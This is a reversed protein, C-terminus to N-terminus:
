FFDLHVLEGIQVRVLNLVTVDLQLTSKSKKKFSRILCVEWRSTFIAIYSGSTGTSTRKFPLGMPSETFICGQVSLYRQKREEYIEITEGDLM